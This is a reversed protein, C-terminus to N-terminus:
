CTQESRQLFNASDIQFHTFFEKLVPLYVSECMKSLDRLDSVFHRRQPVSRWKHLLFSTLFNLITKAGSVLWTSNAQVVIAGAVALDSKGSTEGIASGETETGGAVCFIGSATSSSTFRKSLFNGEMKRM